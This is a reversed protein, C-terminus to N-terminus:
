TKDIKRKADILDRDLRLKKTNQRLVETFKKAELLDDKTLQAQEESRKVLAQLHNSVDGKFLQSAGGRKLLAHIIVPILIGVLLSSGLVIIEVNSM